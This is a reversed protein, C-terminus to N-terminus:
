IERMLQIVNVTPGRSVQKQTFSISRIKTKDNRVPAIWRALEQWVALFNTNFFCFPLHFFFGTESLPLNNLLELIFLTQLSKEDVM